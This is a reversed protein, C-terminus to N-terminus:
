HLASQAATNNPNLKLVKEYLKKAETTKGLRNQLNALQLYLNEQKTEDSGVASISNELLEVSLNAKGEAEYLKALQTIALIYTKDLEISKKYYEIAKDIQGLDRYVTALSSATPATPELQYSRLYEQSAKDLGGTARLAAAYANIDKANSSGSAKRELGPLSKQHADKTTLSEGPEGSGLDDDPSLIFLKVATFTAAAIIIVVISSLFWKPSIKKHRKLSFNSPEM